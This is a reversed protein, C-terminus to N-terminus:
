HKIKYKLISLNKLRQIIKYKLLQIIKIIMKKTMISNKDNYMKLWKYSDLCWLTVVNISYNYEYLGM